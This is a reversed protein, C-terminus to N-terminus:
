QRPCRFDGRDQIEREFLTADLLAVQREDTARRGQGAGDVMGNGLLLGAIANRRERSESEDRAGGHIATRQDLRHGLCPAQVLHAPMQPVDIVWQDAVHVVTRALDIPVITRLIGEMPERKMRVRLTKPAMIEPM